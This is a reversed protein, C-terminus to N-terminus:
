SILASRFSDWDKYPSTLLVEPKPMETYDAVLWNDRPTMKVSIADSARYLRISQQRDLVVVFMRNFGARLHKRMWNPQFKEFYVLNGHAVKTEIWGVSGAINYFIDSMGSGLVNEVRDVQGWKILQPRLKAYLKTEKM